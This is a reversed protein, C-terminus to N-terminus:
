GYMVKEKQKLKIHLPTRGSHTVHMCHGHPVSSPMPDGTVQTLSAQSGGMHTNPILTLNKLLIILVRSKQLWRELGFM